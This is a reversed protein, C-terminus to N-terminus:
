VRPPPKIGSVVTYVGEGKTWHGAFFAQWEPEPCCELYEWLTGTRRVVWFVGGGEDTGSQLCLGLDAPARGNTRPFLYGLVVQSVRGMSISYSKIGPKAAALAQITAETRMREMGHPAVDWQPDRRQMLESVGTSDFIGQPWGAAILVDHVVLWRELQDDLRTARRCKWREVLDRHSKDLPKKRIQYLARFAEKVENTNMTNIRGTLETLEKTVARAEEAAGTASTAHVALFQDNVEGTIAAGYTLYSEWALRPADGLPARAGVGAADAGDDDDDDDDEAAAGEDDDDGAPEDVAPQSRCVTAVETSDDHSRSRKAPLQVEYIRAYKEHAVYMKWHSEYREVATAFTAGPGVPRLENQEFQAYAVVDTLRMAKRAAEITRMTQLEDDSLVRLTPGVCAREERHIIAGLTPLFDRATNEEDVAVCAEVLKLLDDKEYAMSEVVSLLDGVRGVRGRQIAAQSLREKRSLKKLVADVTPGSCHPQRSFRVWVAGRNGKGTRAYFAEDDVPVTLSPAADIGIAVRGARDGFAKQLDAMCLIAEAGAISVADALARSACHAQVEVSAARVDVRVHAWRGGPLRVVRPDTVVLIVRTTPDRARQVMQMLIKATVTCGKVDAVVVDILKRSSIGSQVIPSFAYLQFETVADAPDSCAAADRRSNKLRDIFVEADADRLKSHAVTVKIGAQCALQELLRVDFVTPSCFMVNFGDRCKELALAIAGNKAIKGKSSVPVVIETPAGRYPRLTPTDLVIVRREHVRLYDLACTISKGAMADAWIVEDANVMARLTNGLISANLHTVSDIGEAAEDVLLLQMKGSRETFRHLSHTCVAIVGRADKTIDDDRYHQCRTAVGAAALAKNVDDRLSKVLNRTPASLVVFLDSAKFGPRQEAVRVHEVVAPIMIAWTKGSACVHTLIFVNAIPKGFQARLEQRKARTLPPLERQSLPELVSAQLFLDTMRAPTLSLQCCSAATAARSVTVGQKRSNSKDLVHLEGVAGRVPGCCTVSVCGDLEMRFLLAAPHDHTIGAPCAATPAKLQAMQHGKQYVIVRGVMHQSADVPGYGLANYETVADCLWQPAPAAPTKVDLADGPVFRPDLSFRSVHEMDLPTAGGVDTFGGSSLFDQYTFPENSRMRLVSDLRLPDNTVSDTTRADVCRPMAVPQGTSAFSLFDINYTLRWWSKFEFDNCAADIITHRAEETWKVTQSYARFAHGGSECADTFMWTSADGVGTDSFGTSRFVRDLWPLLQSDIFRFLKDKTGGQRDDDSHPQSVQFALRAVSPVPEFFNYRNEVKPVPASSVWHVFAEHSEFATWLFGPTDDDVYWVTLDHADAAGAQIGVVFAADGIRDCHAVVAPGPGAVEAHWGARGGVEVHARM